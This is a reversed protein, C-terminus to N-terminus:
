SSCVQNVPVIHFDRSERALHQTVQPKIDDVRRTAASPASAFPRLMSTTRDSMMIGPPM